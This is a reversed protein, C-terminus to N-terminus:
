KDTGDSGDDDGGTDDHELLEYEGDLITKDGDSTEGEALALLEADSMENLRHLLVEGNVSIDVKKVQPEYFGCMKGIERWGAVMTLPDGKLRALDIAEEFGEMVRKKTMGVSQALSERREAIANKVKTLKMLKTAMGKPEPYGAARAAASQNMRQDVYYKVFLKQRGNLRPGTGLTLNKPKFEPLEIPPVKPKSKAAM